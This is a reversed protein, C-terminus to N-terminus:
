RGWSELNQTAKEPEVLEGYKFDHIVEVISIICRNTIIEIADHYGDKRYGADTYDGEKNVRRGVFVKSDSRAKEFLGTRARKDDHGKYKVKYYHETM